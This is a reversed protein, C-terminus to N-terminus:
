RSLIRYSPTSKEVVIYDNPRRSGKMYVHQLEGDVRYRVHYGDIFQETTAGSETCSGVKSGLVGSAVTGLVRTVTSSTVKRLIVHGVTAGVVAGLVSNTCNNQVIRSAIVPEISETKISLIEGNATLPLLVLILINKIKM